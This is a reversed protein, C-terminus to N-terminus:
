ILQVGIRLAILLDLLRKGVFAVEIALYVPLPAIIGDVCQLSKLRVLFKIGVPM